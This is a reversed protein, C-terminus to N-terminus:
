GAFMPIPWNRMRYPLVLHTNATRLLLGAAEADPLMARTLPDLAETSITAAMRLFGAADEDEVLMRTADGGERIDRISVFGPGQRYYFDAYRYGATWRRAYEGADSDVGDAPPLLHIHSRLAFGPQGQQIWHLRVAHSTAARLKWLLRLDDQNSVGFVLPESIRVPRFTYDSLHAAKFEDLSM